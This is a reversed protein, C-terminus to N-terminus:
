QRAKPQVSWVWDGQDWQPQTGSQNLVRGGGDDAQNSGVSYLLYGGAHSRYRLPRGDFLDAPVSELFRPVLAELNDPFQGQALRHRELACGVQALDAVAQGRATKECVKGLSTILMKALFNFPTTKMGRLAPELSAARDPHIRHAKEDVAPLEYTEILQCILAENQRVWGTPMLRFAAVWWPNPENGFASYPDIEWGKRQYYDLGVLHMAREGRMVRQYESLLDITGLQKQLSALEVESWAQRALGEKVPSLTISLVAVRVLHSILIPEEKISDAVRLGLKVDELAARSQGAELRAIARISLVNALAKLRALHPLLISYPDEFDYQVPFRSLPCSAAEGLEKLEPDFRSLATLVDEAPSRAQAPQPYNTNGQYFAQWDKLDTLRDVLCNAMGPEKRKQKDRLLADVKQLRDRGAPDRWQIPRSGPVVDLMPKLLPALAFNQDEPVPPPVLAALAYQEGKAEGAHRLRALAHTGRWNEEAYFLAVLTLAGAMGLLLRRASRWSWLRSEPRPTASGQPPVDSKLIQNM